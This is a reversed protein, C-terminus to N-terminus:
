TAMFVSSQYLGNNCEMRYSLGEIHACIYKIHVWQNEIKKKENCIFNVSFESLDQITLLRDDKDTSTFKQICEAEIFRSIQNM